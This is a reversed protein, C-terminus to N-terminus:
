LAPAFVQEGFKRFLQHSLDPFERISDWRFPEVLSQHFDTRNMRVLGPFETQEEITLLCRDAFLQGSERVCCPKLLRM